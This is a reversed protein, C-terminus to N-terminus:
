RRAAQYLQVVRDIMAPASPLSSVDDDALSSAETVVVDFRHDATQGVYRSSGGGPGFLTSDAVPVTSPLRQTAPRATVSLAAFHDHGDRGAQLCSYGVPSSQRTCRVEPHAATIEGVAATIARETQPSIAVAPTIIAAMMLTGFGRFLM